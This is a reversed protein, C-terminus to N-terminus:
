RRRGFLRLLKLFLNVFDLYLELAGDIAERTEEDSDEATGTVNLNKLKQTDYAILGTFVLAGVVSVAWDVLPNGLFLNVVSVLIVGLLGSILVHGWSTLDHDTFYGYLGMIGFVGATAFFLIVISSMAYVFFIVSLTLGSTFCYLLFVGMTAGVSLKEKAGALLIVLLLEIFLLCYFVPHNEVISRAVQPTFAVWAATAGSVALGGCMWLYVRMFFHRREHSIRDNVPLIPM